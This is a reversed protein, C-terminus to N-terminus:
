GHNAEDQTQEVGLPYRTQKTMRAAVTYQTVKGAAMNGNTKAFVPSYRVNM